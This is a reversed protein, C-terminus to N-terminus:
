KFIRRYMDSQFLGEPDYKQKLSLFEEVKYMKRFEEKTLIADKALYIIGGVSLVIENMKRFMEQQKEKLKPQAPIDLAFSYGDLAYSLLFGDKKHAKIASLYAPMNYKHTLQILKQIIEKAREKPILPEYEYFGHRFVKKWNPVNDLLFTFDFINQEQTGVTKKDLHYKLASVRKMVLNTLFYKGFFPILTKPFIGFLLPSIKGMEERSKSPSIPIFNASHVTGRGLESKTPFCDVQAIAFTNKSVETEFIQLLEDLSAATVKKVSLYSSPVPSLQLTIETVIGLLGMGGIVAFFLESNENRSCVKEEGNGLIIKFKEVSGGFNGQARANKGHINNALAGGMTVYRTGPITPLVWNKDLTKLLINEFTVGPETQLIGSTEDFSIVRNMQTMDLITHGQNLAQDGYSLGGGRATVKKGSNKAALIAKRVEENTTPSIVESESSHTGAWGSIIENM